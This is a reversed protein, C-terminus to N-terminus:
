HTTSGGGGATWHVKGHLAAAAGECHQEFRLDLSALAGSSYTVSDVVFWGTLTNCGAGNGSWSLGGTSPNNFPYRELNGYYGPQLQVISDMGQFSGNWGDGTSAAVSVSALTGASSAQITSSADTYLTTLGGGVYDGADSQLYVYNGSSPAIGGPPTWLGAPAPVQPGPPATTDGAVWHVQGHLAATGGECHQEFRLDISALTSGSYTVSDIVFWGTLTNCGRGDGGWDLGGMVPNNFPYRRLGPYYGPQLQSISDMGQFDASWNDNGSVTVGLHAGSANLALTADAQTYAYTGGGGIYDGSDSQLYVYNGTAPTAGAAARWLSAPPPNQPGAPATTDGAVWHIQGHLAAAAGECHQEFRLDVATLTGASYTIADIAFWGTLTNCGAGDGSWSLGGTVPNSFPYRLLGAYYGPQLQSLSSMGQFDGSWNDNGTVGVGLHVCSTTTTLVANAQTYVNTLGGGIFDGTDSQLYVYNGSTPTAGAPASWLSTPAPTVPGPPLSHDSALWHIQGHLAPGAGECHQEFRLDIATLLTGAYTAKDITFSGAQTDCGRGNGTWDIGGVAANMFAFRTLNQYTGPQLVALASPEAFDGTWNDNGNIGLHFQGATSTVTLQANANSYAYSQGAGVYDGADSQLTVFSATGNANIATSATATAVNNSSVPDGGPAAYMTNAIAGITNAAITAPVTFVLTGGVPLTPVTMLAGLTAPCTAGGQAACTITGLTQHPDVTNELALNSSADPGANTVTMTYTAVGGSTLTATPAQATVQVDAVFAQLNLPVQDSSSAAAGDVSVSAMSAISGRTGAVVAANVQFLLSANAPLSAVSMSSADAPCAAGGSATCLVSTRTLGSGLSLTAVVNSVSATTTNRVTLDFQVPNGSGVPTTPATATISVRGSPDTSNGGGGGGCAALASLMAAALWNNFRM